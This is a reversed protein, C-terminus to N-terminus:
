SHEEPENEDRGEEKGAGERGKERGEGKRRKVKRRKRIETNKM